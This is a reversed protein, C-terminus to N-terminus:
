TDTRRTSVRGYRTTTSAAFAIAGVMTSREALAAAAQAGVRAVRTASADTAESRGLRVSADRIAAATPQDLSYTDTEVDYKLDVICMVDKIAYPRADDANLKYILPSNGARTYWETIIHVDPRPTVPDLASRDHGHSDGPTSAGVLSLIHVRQSCFERVNKEFSIVRKSL